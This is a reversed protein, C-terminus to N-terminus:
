GQYNEAGLKANFDGELFVSDDALIQGKLKFVLVTM